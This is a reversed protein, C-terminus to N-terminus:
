TATLVPERGSNTHNLCQPHSSIDFEKMQQSMLPFPFPQSGGGERLGEEREGGGEERGGEEGRKGGKRGRKGERGGDETGEERGGEKRERM